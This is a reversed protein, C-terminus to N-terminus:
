DSNFHGDQFLGVLDQIFVLIAACCDLLQILAAQFLFQSLLLPVLVGLPFSTKKQVSFLSCCLDDPIIFTSTNSNNFKM